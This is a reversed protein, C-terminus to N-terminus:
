AYTFGDKKITKKGDPNTVVVDVVGAAHPPTGLSILSPTINVTDTADVDGFKIKAGAAFGTGKITVPTSGNIPGTEPTVM